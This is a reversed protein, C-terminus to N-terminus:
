NDRDPEYEKMANRIRSLSEPTIGLYTAIHKQPIKSALEPYLKKFHIYRETASETLFGNERYIKYRFGKELLSIWTDKMGESERILKRADAVSILMVTSEELTEWMCIREDYGFFGEDMCMTGNIAFGRTIDNGDKDVYYCRLTGKLVIGAMRTDDGIRALIEGKPVVRFSAAAIARDLVEDDVKIDHVEAIKKLEEILYDKDM